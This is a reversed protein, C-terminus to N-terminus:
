VDDRARPEDNRAAAPENDVAPLDPLDPLAAPEATGEITVGTAADQAAFSLLRRMRERESLTLAHEVIGTHEVTQKDGYVRPALKAMLFKRTDVQLRSRQVAASNPSGDALRDGSDDDAITLLDDSMSEMGIERARAYQDFFAPNSMRWNHITQRSPIGPTRCIQTLTEGDALRACILEAVAPSYTSSRGPSKRQIQGPTSATKSVPHAANNSM